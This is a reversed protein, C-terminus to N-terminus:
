YYKIFAWNDRNISNCIKWTHSYPNSIGYQTNQSMILEGGRPTDQIISFSSRPYIDYIM